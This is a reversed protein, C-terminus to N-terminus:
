SNESTLIRFPYIREQRGSPPTGPAIQLLCEVTGQAIEAIPHALIVDILGATLAAETSPSQELCIVIPRRPGLERLLPLIGDVGGGAFFFAALDPDQQLLRRAEQGAIQDSEQTMRPELLTLPLAATRLFSRFGAEVTQQSLYRESGILAGIRSHPPCLRELFWGATRGLQWDNSGVFIRRAPSSVDSLMTVIQVGRAALEAIVRNIEPHDPCVAGIADCSEGLERLAAVNEAVDPVPLHRMISRGRIGTAGAVEDALLRAFESYFLRERSNLLFGFTREPAAEGLRDRILALGHFGIEEAVALVHEITARKVLGRGSLIRDITSVSLQAERALDSITVRRPLAPELVPIAHREFKPSGSRTPLPWFRRNRDRVRLSKGEDM